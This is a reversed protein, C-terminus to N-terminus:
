NLQTGTPLAANTYGPDRADPEHRTVSLNPLVDAPPGELRWGRRRAICDTHYLDGRWAMWPQDLDIVRECAPCRVADAVQFVQAPHRRAEAWAKVRSWWRGVKNM